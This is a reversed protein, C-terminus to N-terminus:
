QTAQELQTPTAKKKSQKGKYNAKRKKEKSPDDTTEIIEVVKIKYTRKKPPTLSKSTAGQHMENYRRDHTTQRYCREFVEGRIRKQFNKVLHRMCERHEVGNTFFTTVVKDIGKGADSSIVLSHPSCIAKHLM